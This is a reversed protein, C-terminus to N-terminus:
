LTDTTIQKMKTYKKLQIAMCTEINMAYKQVTMMEEKCTIYAGISSRIELLNVTPFFMKLWLLILSIANSVFSLKCMLLDQSSKGNMEGEIVKASQTIFIASVNENCCLWFM